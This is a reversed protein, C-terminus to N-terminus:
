KEFKEKGNLILFQFKINLVDGFRCFRHVDACFYLETFYDCKELSREYM